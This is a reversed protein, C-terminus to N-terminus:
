GTFHLCHCYNGFCSNRVRPVDSNPSSPVIDELKKSTSVEVVQSSSYRSKSSPPMVPLPYSTRIRLNIQLHHHLNHHIRHHLFLLHSCLSILFQQPFFISTIPSEPSPPQEGSDPIPIFM